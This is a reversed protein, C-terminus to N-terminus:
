RSRAVKALYMPAEDYTACHVARSNKDIATLLTDIDTGRSKAILFYRGVLSGDGEPAALLEDYRAKQARIEDYATM